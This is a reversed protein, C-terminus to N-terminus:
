MPPLPEFPVVAVTRGVVGSSMITVIAAARFCSGGSSRLAASACRRQGIRPSGSPDIPGGGFASRPPPRNTNTQQLVHTGFALASGSPTNCFTSPNRLRDASPLRHDLPHDLARDAVPEDDQEPRRGQRREADVRH